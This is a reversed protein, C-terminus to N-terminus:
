RGFHLRVQLSEDAHLEFHQRVMRGEIDWALVEHRGTSLSPLTHAFRMTLVSRVEHEPMGKSDLVRLHFAAPTGNEDDARVDIRGVPIEELRVESVSGPAIEVPVPKKRWGRVEFRGSPCWAEKMDIGEDLRGMDFSIVAAAALRRLQVPFGFDPGSRVGLERVTRLRGERPISVAGLDMVDDRLTADVFARTWCHDQELSRGWVVLTFPGRPAAHIEFRGTEDTEASIWWSWLNDEPEPDPLELHVDVGAEPRGDADVVRGRVIGVPLELEVTRRRSLRERFVLRTQSGAKQGSVPTRLDVILETAGEEPVKLLFEGSREVDAEFEDEPYPWRVPNARVGLESGPPVNGRIRGHVTIPTAREEGLTVRSTEGARVEVCVAEVNVPTGEGRSFLYLGEPLNVVRARGFVDTFLFNWDPDPALRELHTLPEKFWWPGLPPRARLELTGTAGVGKWDTVPASSWNLALAGQRDWPCLMVAALGALVFSSGIFAVRIWRPLRM